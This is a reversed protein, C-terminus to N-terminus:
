TVPQCSFGANDNNQQCTDGGTCTAGCQGCNPESSLDSCMAENNSDKPCCQQGAQADCINGCSGCNPSLDFNKCEATNGTACCGNNEFEDCVDGCRGCNDPDDSLNKCTGGCDTEGTPCITPDVPTPGPAPVPAATKIFVQYVFIYAVFLAFGVVYINYSGIRM